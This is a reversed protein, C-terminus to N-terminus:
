AAIAFDFFDDITKLQAALSAGDLRIADRPANERPTKGIEIPQILGSQHRIWKEGAYVWFYPIDRNDLDSMEAALMKDTTESTFHGSFRFKWFISERWSSM